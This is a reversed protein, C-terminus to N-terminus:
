PSPSTLTLPAEADLNWQGEWGCMAPVYRTLNALLRVQLRLCAVSAAVVHVRTHVQLRTSIHLLPQAHAHVVHCTHMHMHMRMRMHMCMNHMHTHLLSAAVVHTISAAAM